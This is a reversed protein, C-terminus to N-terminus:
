EGTGVLGEGSIRSQELARAYDEPTDLDVLVGENDWPVPCVRAEYRQLLGRLGVEDFDNLIEDEYSRDFLLPHGRRGGFTPVCLQGSGSQFTECLHDILPVDVQPQDGLFLMVGQAQNPLGRLGARISSLMGESYAPNHVASLSRGALLQAVREPQHGTVVVGSGIKSVEIATVIEELVTSDGFPLLVKQRGMRRSEGAALVIASIV